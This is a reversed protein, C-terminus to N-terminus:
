RITTEEKTWSKRKRWLTSDDIGLVTAAEEMSKTQAMVLLVHHREIEELTFRGGLVPGAPAAWRGQVRTPFAAPEIVPAPWLILAREIANQLERINGPWDYEIIATEADKSLSTSPRGFARAYFEVFRRALPLTDEKRQRLAPMMVDVVNLRYFLDERFRGARIDAELDRNTAAIVRVDARRTRNDGIREFEKDQVFRLLKAQLSPPVEGIEDLFLSGGHAAEVRGPRERVAGPFSGRAHGFLESALLEESLTPCNVVVFPQDARPSHAHLFRAIASKGTGTEGRLLVPVDVRAARALTDYVAQMQPSASSLELRPVSSELESELNAVRLALRRRDVVKDVAHVIQTPTFPKPLYDWAGRRIAEVATDFTAHATIMVISLGPREALLRPILDLGSEVGLRLDLFALDVHQKELVALAATGSSVASVTCGAQELCLALTARINKEDDIVLVSLGRRAAGPDLTPVTAHM